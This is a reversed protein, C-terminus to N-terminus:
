PLSPELSGTVPTAPLAALGFLELAAPDEPARTLCSRASFSSRAHDGALWADRALMLAAADSGRVLAAGLTRARAPEDLEARALRARSLAWVEAEAGAAPVRADLVDRARALDGREAAVRAVLSATSATPQALDLASAIADADALRLRALQDEAARRALDAHVSDLDDASASLANVFARVRTPGPQVYRAVLWSETPGLQVIPEGPDDWVRPALGALERVRSQLVRGRLAEPRDSMQRADEVRDRGLKELEAARMRLETSGSPLSELARLERWVPAWRPGGEALGAQATALVLAGIM